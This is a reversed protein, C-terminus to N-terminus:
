AVATKNEAVHDQKKHEDLDLASPFAENCEACEFRPRELSEQTKVKYGDNAPLPAQKGEKERDKNMYCQM